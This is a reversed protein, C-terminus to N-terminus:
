KLWIDLDANINLKNSFNAWGITLGVTTLNYTYLEKDNWLEFLAEIEPLKDILYTRIDEIDEFISPYEKKLIDELKDGLLSNGCGLYTLYELDRRIEKDKPIFPIVQNKINTLLGEINQVNPWTTQNLIFAITILNNQKETMKHVITIAENLNLQIMNKEVEATRETLLFILRDLLEKSGYRAYSKQEEYLIYQMDPNKLEELTEINKNKISEIYSEIFENVREEIVKNAERKLEIFNAKFLDLCIEKVDSYSLGSTVIQINNTTNGTSNGNGNVFNGSNTSNNQEQNYIGEM